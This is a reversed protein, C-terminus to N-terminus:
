LHSQLANTCPLCHGIRYSSVILETNFGSVKLRHRGADNERQIGVDTHKNAFGAVSSAVLTGCYACNPSLFYIIFARLVFNVAISPFVSATRSRANSEIADSILFEDAARNFSRHVSSAPSPSSSSTKGVAVVVSRALSRQRLILTPREKAAGRGRDVRWSRSVSTCNAIKLSRRM